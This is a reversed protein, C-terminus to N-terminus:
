RCWADQRRHQVASLRYGASVLDPREVDSWEISTIDGLNPVHPWHKELVRCAFEDVEAQWICRMGARELGLGIGEIGSCLSGFTFTDPAREVVTNTM